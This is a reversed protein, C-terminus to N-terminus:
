RSISNLQGSWVRGVGKFDSFIRGGGGMAMQVYRMSPPTRMATMFVVFRMGSGVCAVKPTYQVNSLWFSM